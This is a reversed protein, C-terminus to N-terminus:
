VPQEGTLRCARGGFAPLLARTPAAFPWSRWWAAVYSTGFPGRQRWGEFVGLNVADFELCPQRGILIQFSSTVDGQPVCAGQPVGGQPVGGQPVCAGHCFFAPGEAFVLSRFCIQIQDHTDTRRLAKLEFATFTELSTCSGGHFESSANLVVILEHQSVPAKAVSCKGVTPTVVGWKIM